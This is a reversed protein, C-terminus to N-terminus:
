NENVLRRYEIFQIDYNDTKIIDSSKDITFQKENDLNPFFTDADKYANVKTVLVKTYYPLMMKYVSAGGIIYIDENTNKIYDLLENLSHVNVCEPLEEDFSLVVNTRNKLPKSNPFSKLTNLGMCVIKNMTQEKFYEMDEPIDFLLKNDKGIGWDSAVCVIGIIEM